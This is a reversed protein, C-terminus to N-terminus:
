EEIRGGAAEVAARAGKTVGLGRLVVPKDLQGARIIKVRQLGRTLLGAAKLADLDIVDVALRNLADLRLEGSMRAKRSQFGYKPLRRQLPM